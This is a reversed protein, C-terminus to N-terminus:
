NGAIGLTPDHLSLDDGRMGGFMQMVSGCMDNATTTYTVACSVNRVVPGVAVVSGASLIQTCNVGLNLYVFQLHEVGVAQEM